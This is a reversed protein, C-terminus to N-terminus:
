YQGCKPARKTGLMRALATPGATITLRNYNNKFQILLLCKLCFLPTTFTQLRHYYNIGSVNVFYSLCSYFSLYQVSVCFWNIYVLVLFTVMYLINVTCFLLYVIVQLVLNMGSLPSFNHMISLYYIVFLCLEPIEKSLFTM